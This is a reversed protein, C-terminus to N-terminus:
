LATRKGTGPPGSVLLTALPMSGGCGTKITACFNHLMFATHSPVVLDEICSVATNASDSNDGDAETRACDSDRMTMKRIVYQRFVVFSEYLVTLAIVIGLGVACRFALVRPEIKAVTAFAAVESFAGDVLELMKERLIRSRAQMLKLAHGEVGAEKMLEIKYRVADMMRSIEFNHRILQDNFDFDVISVDYSHQQHLTINKIANLQRRKMLDIDAIRSMVETTYAELRQQRELRSEKRLDMRYLAREIRKISANVTTRIAVDALDRRLQASRKATALRDSSIWGSELLVKGHKKQFESEPNERTARQVISQVEAALIDYKHQMAQIAGVSHMFVVSKDVLPYNNLVVPPKTKDKQPLPFTAAVEVGEPFVKMIDASLFGMQQRGSVSDLNYEYVKLQVQLVKELAQSCNVPGVHVYFGESQGKSGLFSHATPVYVLFIFAVSIVHVIGMAAMM